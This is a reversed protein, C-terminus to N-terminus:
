KKKNKDIKLEKIVFNFYESYAKEATNTVKDLDELKSCIPINASM